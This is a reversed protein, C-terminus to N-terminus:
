KYSMEYVSRSKCAVTKTYKGKVILVNSNSRDDTKLWGKRLAWRNEPTDDLKITLPVGNSYYAQITNM